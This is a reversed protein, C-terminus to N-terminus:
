VDNILLGPYEDFHHIKKSKLNKDYRFGSVQWSKEQPVGEQHQAKIFYVSESDVGMIPMYEELSFKELGRQENLLYISPNKWGRDVAQIIIRGDDTAFLNTIIPEGMDPVAYDRWRLTHKNMVRIKGNSMSFYLNDGSVSIFFITKYPLYNCGSMMFLFLVLIITLQIRKKPNYM